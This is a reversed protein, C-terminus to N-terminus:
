ALEKKLDAVYKDAQRTPEPIRYGKACKSVIELATPLDIKHGISVFVPKTNKKTRLVAGIRDGEKSLLPSWSGPQEGPEEFTGYLRKKAVGLAPVDLIVGVHCAIGFGRPHARGQGDLILLDPKTSLKGYAEIIAPGERFSLLGPIYPFKEYVVASVREIVSMDPFRFVVIGCVLKKQEKLIALDAGALTKITKFSRAEIVRDKLERQFAIAEAVSPPVYSLLDVPREKEIAVM